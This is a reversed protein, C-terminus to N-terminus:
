LKSLRVPNVQQSRAKLYVQAAGESALYLLITLGVAVVSAPLLLFAYGTIVGVRWRKLGWGLSLVLPSVFLLVILWWRSPPNWRLALSFLYMGAAAYLLVWLSILARWIIGRLVNTALSVAGWMVWRRVFPVRTTVMSDRLITDAKERENPDVASRCLQDHLLAPLTHRGYRPVLWTLFGPVSALDTSDGRTVLIDPEGDRTFRFAEELCFNKPTVQRLLVEADNDSWQKRFESGPTPPGKGIASRYSVEIADGLWHAVGEGSATALSELQQQEEPTIDVNM